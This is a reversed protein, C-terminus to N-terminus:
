LKLTFWGMVRSGIVPGTPYERHRDNLTNYVSVALEAQKNWFWYGGRLNLLTYSPVRDNPIANAPILGLGSFQAFEPRVPYTASGVYHFVVNGNLGNDFNLNLGANVMSSPGGRRLNGTISQKTDQYSYNAFGRLWPTALFEVGVEVGRIDAVASTNFYTSSTMSTTEVGILNTIHNWFLALRPRLRHNWFWGQYEAEYSVIKEPKLNSSGELTNTTSFGFVTVTTVTDGNTELLTPARYGVTGSIRFTHDAIPSYFLAIRPSYTPNIESHLDLRIGANLWAQKLPRWEDQLYLGLREERSFSSIQTSSLSNHRYNLGAILTHTTGISRQGQSIVNYTTNDFPIGSSRGSSDEVSIIGTLPPVPMFDVTNTQRSWFARVFFNEQEYGIRAYSLTNPTDFQVIEAAADLRNSDILGGEVRINGQNPLHYNVLGNFRNARYALSNRDRWKNNQDHSYALRYGLRDHRNAYIATSRITGFEGGGIQATIGKAEKPTKTIINIVGDFANFGYISSAPGKLVEVRQIEQLSVPLGKWPAVGQADIYASRGDILILMKNALEQNDGRASVNFQGGTREIVSIGPIWRLLTPLDTAGSQEIDEARIVYINSPAESIPQEEYSSTVVTEEALFQLDDKLDPILDVSHPASLSPDKSFCPSIWFSLVM